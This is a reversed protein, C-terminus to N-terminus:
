IVTGKAMDIGCWCINKGDTLQLATTHLRFYKRYIRCVLSYDTEMLRIEINDDNDDRCKPVSFVSGKRIGLSEALQKLELYM